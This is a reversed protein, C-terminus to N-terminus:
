APDRCRAHPPPWLHFDPDIAERRRVIFGAARDTFRLPEPVQDLLDLVGILHSQIDESNALVM